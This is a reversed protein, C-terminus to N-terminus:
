SSEDSHLNTLQNKKIRYQSLENNYRTNDATARADYDSWQKNNRRAGSPVNLDRASKRSPMRLDAYGSIRSQVAQLDGEKRALRIKNDNYEDTLNKSINDPRKSVKLIKYSPLKIEPSHLTRMASMDSSFETTLTEIGYQKRRLLTYLLHASILVIIGILVVRFSDM